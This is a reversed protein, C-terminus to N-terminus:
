GEFQNGETRRKLVQKAEEDRTWGRRGGMKDDNDECQEVATTASKRKGNEGDEGSELIARSNSIRM